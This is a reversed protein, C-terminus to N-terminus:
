KRRIRNIGVSVVPSQKARKLENIKQLRSQITLSKLAENEIKEVNEFSLAAPLAEEIYEDVTLPINHLLKKFYVMQLAQGFDDDIKLLVDIKEGSKVLEPDAFRRSCMQYRFLDSDHLEDPSAVDPFSLPPYTNHGNIVTAPASTDDPCLVHFRTYGKKGPVFCHPEQEDYRMAEDIDDLAATETPNSPAFRFGFGKNLMERVKDESHSNVGARVHYRSLTPRSYKPVLGAYHAKMFDLREQVTDFHEAANARKWADSVLQAWTRNQLPNEPSYVAYPTLVSLLRCAVDEPTADAQFSLPIVFTHGPLRTNQSSVALYGAVNAHFKTKTRAWDSFPVKNFNKWAHPSGFIAGFQSYSIAHIDDRYKKHVLGEQSKEVEHQCEILFVKLTMTDIQNQIERANWGRWTIEGSVYFDRIIGGVTRQETVLNRVAPIPKTAKRNALVRAQQKYIQYLVSYRSIMNQAFFFLTNWQKTPIVSRTLVSLRGASIVPSDERDDIDDPIIYTPRIGEVNAGAVGQDLGIFHFICGAATNIFAATWGQAQGQENRKVLSLRPAYRKVAPTQLMASITAATGRVKNTTGGVVLAYSPVSHACCLLADTIITARALTTKMNGRAWIAMYAWFEPYYEAQTGERSQNHQQPTITGNALQKDLVRMALECEILALRALWHWELAESHHRDDTEISDLSNVFKEGFIEAYFDRWGSRILELLPAYDSEDIGDAIADAVHTELGKLSESALQPIPLTTM